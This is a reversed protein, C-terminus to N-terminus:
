KYGNASIVQWHRVTLALVQLEQFVPCQLGFCIMNFEHAQMYSLSLSRCQKGKPDFALAVTM